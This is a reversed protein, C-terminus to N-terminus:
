YNNNENRQFKPLEITATVYDGTQKIQFDANRGYILHLRKATNELGIGKSKENSTQIQGSNTVEIIMFSEKSSPKISLMILGGSKLKSIGHKVANEVLTLILLPPVSSELCSAHIESKFLLREEFRIKELLVYKEVLEIEESLVFNERRGAYLTGRLIVSLLTVAEKAKTPSDDILARISNLSNFLFHPNIQNRLSNLEIETQAAHLRLNKIGAERYNQLFRFSFYLVLWVLFIISFNIGTIYFSSNSFDIIRANDRLFLDSLGGVTLHLANGLLVSVLIMLPILRGISIRDWGKQNIIKRAAHSYAIGFLFILSLLVGLNFSAPEKLVYVFWNGTIFLGWGSIQAMWYIKERNKM